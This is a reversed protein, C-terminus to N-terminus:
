FQWTWRVSFLNDNGSPPADTSNIMYEARVDTNRSLRYGAAVQVRDIPYDWREMAGGGVNVKNFRVGSYRAAAYLGPTLKVKGEGYFSVDRPYPDEVHPVDWTDLLVESRLEVPGRAFTGEFGWIKQDFDNISNEDAPLPAGKLRDQLYPGRDYSVGLKLEPTVQWAGHAIFSYAHRQHLDLGWQSPESSPASNVWGVRFGLTKWGGMAMAGFQYPAEWVIPAGIPRWFGPNDKWSAFGAATGPVITPSIMTRYDYPLPPRIFPDAASHHRQPWNGFPTVFKGAEVSLNAKPIPTVRVYAQEVRTEVPRDAPAEGRDARLEVLGYVRQGAFMDVYLSARGAVFPHTTPVLWAPADGPLYGELDLRGSPTIQWFGNKSTWSVGYDALTPLHQAKAGAASAVLGLLAMAAAGATKALGSSARSEGASPEGDERLGRISYVELPKSVGKFMRPGLPAADVGARLERLFPEVVLIEGGRAVDCLRSAVNVSEGLVTYNLRGTSGMNGAVAPGANIGIGMGLSPEGRSVRELNLAEISARIRLAARVARDAEGGRSMPAGFVAMIEDGVFKDVVGGEAEVAGAAREMVENVLAIV